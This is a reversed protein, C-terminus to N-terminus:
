ECVNCLECLKKVERLLTRGLAAARVHQVTTPCRGDVLGEGAYIDYTARTM